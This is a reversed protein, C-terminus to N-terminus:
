KEAERRYVVNEPGLINGLETLLTPTDALAYRADLTNTVGTTQDTTTVKAPGPHNQIFTLLTKKVPATAHEEDFRLYWVGQAPAVQVTEDPIVLQQVIMSLQRSMEVKGSVQIIANETLATEFRKYLAPFFTLSLNGSADSLTVFAMQEGKKTRIKRISEIMGIVTVQQMESTIDVLDPWQQQQKLAQYRDLPHASLTVGIAEKEAALRENLPLDDQKKILTENLILSGFRAGEILEDLAALVEARNYGFHDLAGAYTLSKLTELKRMKEPLRAVFSQLSTFPGNQQREELLAKVFDTRLGRINHLGMQLQQSQISFFRQSQNVNPPLVTLHRAKAETIYLRTKDQNGLNANLLAAFFALPYHTKLYALQYAMKSYAVAHSRNFGYNAFEDIYNFIKEAQLRDHGKQQAGTIFQERLTAMKQTNKKAMASRLVDAEGLSFGAYKEAVRMVQEQYVIIGFTPALIDKLTSDPINVPEQGFRRAIFHKINQMPGPRYLANVAAVLEFTNPKLQRLVNKIGSSEFQFIGNTDGKAFLALTQEDDLPVHSIDFHKPLHQKALHLTNALLTLNRLGLLDIKLLGLREVAGKEYQTLLRQESGSQLPVNRVLPQQSLVVGAAHTSYNRPLGEIKQATRWLLEGHPLEQIIQRLNKSTEWAQALTPQRGNVPQPLAASLRSLTRTDVDFVRATDRLAQRAALTGFTIIQAVHQHGYKDHLYALVTERHNDPLDIDIDPLQARELNLFREFLLGFAIPDVDTIRLVYAVLSGAASGRGAGTQFHQDHAFKLIDWVILFYDSFGLREIIALEHALRREYVAADGKILRLREKLGTNALQTLYAGASQQNPTPYSPLTVEAAHLTLNIESVLQDNNRLADQLQSQEFQKVVQEPTHLINLGTQQALATIGTLKENQDIAHLVQTTFADDEHLYDVVPLAMLPISFQASAQKLASQLTPHMQPHIGLYLDLTSVQDVFNPLLDPQSQLIQNVEGQEPIIIALGEAHEIVANFAVPTQDEQTGKLTALALLNQYGTDNKALVVIPFATAQNLIGGVHLTMGIIPKLGAQQALQSFAVAGYLNDDDTLALAAYGLEKARHVLAQLSNPHKLLSFASHLQLPTYTM